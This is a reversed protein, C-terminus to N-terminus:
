KVELIISAFYQEDDRFIELVTLGAGEALRMIEKISYKKSIETHICEYKEFSICLDLSDIYVEQEALSLLYSAAEGTQPDYIPYHSWNERKFDAGLERNMRDLLNLNFEATVGKADNYAPLIVQPDKKLDVGLLMLDGSKSVSAYQKMFAVAEDFHFNGINSGLFLTVTLHTDHSSLYELAEFYDTAKPSIRIQPFNERCSAELVDLIHQSIDIPYYTFEFKQKLLEELLLKTKHGDGAGLEALNFPENSLGWSQIIEKKQNVLIEFESRTLYYEPLEMIKQFLRNGKEDYFYKSPISRPYKSFGELVDWEFATKAEIKTNM